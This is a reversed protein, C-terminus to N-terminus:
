VHARGIEEGGIPLKTGSMHGAAIQLVGDSTGHYIPLKQKIKPVSIYGMLGNDGLNLVKWYPTNRLNKEEQSFADGHFTNTTITENYAEAEEWASKFDTESMKEVQKEYSAIAHSQHLKNWQDSITPYTFIGLGTLFILGVILNPLIKKFKKM